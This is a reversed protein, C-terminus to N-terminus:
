NKLFNIAKGIGACAEYKEHYEHIKLNEELTAIFDKRNCTIDVITGEDELYVELVPVHKRKGVLNELIGKVIGKSVGLDKEKILQEFAETNKVKIKDVM